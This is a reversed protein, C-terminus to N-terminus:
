LHNLMLMFYKSTKPMKWAVPSPPCFPPFSDSWTFLVEITSKQFFFFFVLFLGDYFCCDRHWSSLLCPTTQVPVLDGGPTAQDQGHAFVSIIGALLTLFVFIYIFIMILILILLQWLFHYLLQIPLFHYLLHIPLFNNLFKSGGLVELHPESTVM